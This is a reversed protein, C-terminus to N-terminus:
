GKLLNKFGAIPNFHPMRTAKSQVRWVHQLDFEPQLVGLLAKTDAKVGEVLDPLAVVSDFWEASLLIVGIRQKSNM